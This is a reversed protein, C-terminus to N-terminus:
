LPVFGGVPLREGIALIFVVGKARNEEIIDIM